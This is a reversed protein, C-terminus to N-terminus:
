KWDGQLTFAAWYYASSWHKERWLALQAHRLAQAPLMQNQEMAKYFATMLKATAFDEVKWLSGIVGQAGAYMFGRTLGIMGEGDMEKGLATDCASLVVLNAGLDMNYIDQLDLFGQQPQGREDVLSLVLGSLDPHKDNVLAHTAFHVVRYHALEGSVALKRSAQFDLAIRIKEAPIVASMADAERRSFPLRALHLQGGGSLDTDKASRTLRDMSEGQLASDNEEVKSLPKNLPKGTVRTDERNFVPDALIVAEKAPRNGAPRPRRLIALVSASPLNVIEHKVILPVAAKASDPEPLAAFPIHLLAGDAVVLLRKHGLQSEVPGLLIGSLTSAVNLYESDAQTIRTQRSQQNEDKLFQNRATLLLYLHKALIEIEARKPLDSIRLSDSTVAFVHSHQEGLSYELLLTDPGLLKQIEGSTLPKPQTLATYAPSNLQLRQEVEGYQKELEEIEKTVAALQKESNKQGLLRLRRDSIAAVSAQLSREQELLSPEAGKRIDVHAGELMELLIRARSRELMEFSRDPLKQTLLLDVYATYIGRHQAVFGSRIDESGGLRAAQSELASVAQEYFQAAGDLQQQDRLVSAVAALSEAHDKSGPALKERLALAQRYYQEAKASDGSKRAVDGLGQMTTAMNLSEPALKKKITLSQQYYDEAKPLDGREKAVEGLDSFSIAVRLSEPSVKLQIELTQRYYQEATELDGRYQALKGLNGLIAAVNVSGPALRRQIELAQRYYEEAKELDGRYGEVNGLNILSGSVSLSGPVLKQKLDLAQHHYQEATTLDGRALAIMGLNNLSAAVLFSEPALKTRIELARHEYQDWKPLDGRQWAVIGLSTYSAALALSEPAVRNRIEMAQRYYGEAHTLDGRDLAVSGLNHLSTAVPLTGPALKEKMELAQRGYREAKDLDGHQSWIDGLADLISALALTGDGPNQSKAIAQQFYKEANAWDSRQQYATAWARLVQAEIDPTTEAAHQLASQYADDAEKWQRANRLSEAGHFFLWAAIWPAQPGSYRSALLKWHESAQVTEAAKGVNALEQGEHYGSLLDVSFNPRVAVQWPTYGMSWSMTEAGRRGQLTVKGLPAQEIEIQALDFPTQIKGSTDGRFWTLLVDGEQLGASEGESRHVLREVVVGREIENKLSQTAQQGERSWVPRSGFILALLLIISQWHPLNALSFSHLQKAFVRKQCGGLVSASGETEPLQESESELLITLDGRTITSKSKPCSM